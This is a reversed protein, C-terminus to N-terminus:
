SFPSMIWFSTANLRLQISTPRVWASISTSIGMSKHGIIQSSSKKTTWLKLSRKQGVLGHAGYLLEKPVGPCGCDIMSRLYQVGFCLQEAGGWFPHGRLDNSTAFQLQLNQTQSIVQVEIQLRLHGRYDLRIVWKQLHQAVQGGVFMPAIGPYRFLTSCLERAGWTEMDIHICPKGDPIATGSLSSCLCYQLTGKQRFRGNFM